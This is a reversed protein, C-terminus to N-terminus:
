ALDSARLRKQFPSGDERGSATAKRKGQSVVPRSPGHDQDLFPNQEEPGERRGVGAGEQAPPVEARPLWPKAKVKAVYHKELTLRMRMRQLRTIEHAMQPYDDSKADLDMVAVKLEDLTPRAHGAPGRLQQTARVVTCEDARPEQASSSQDAANERARPVHQPQAISPHSIPNRPPPSHLRSTEGPRSRVLPERDKATPRTSVPASYGPEGQREGVVIPKFIPPKASVQLQHPGFSHVSPAGRPPEDDLEVPTKGRTPGTRRSPSTNSCIIDSIRASGQKAENTRQVPQSVGSTGPVLDSSRASSRVQVIDQARRSVGSASHEGTQRVPLAHGGDHM